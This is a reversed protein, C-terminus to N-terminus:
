FSTIYCLHLCTKISNDFSKGRVDRSWLSIFKSRHNLWNRFSYRLRHTILKNEGKQRLNQCPLFFFLNLLCGPLWLFFSFPFFNSLITQVEKKKRKRRRARQSKKLNVFSSRYLTTPFCSCHPSSSIIENYFSKCVSISLCQRYQFSVVM